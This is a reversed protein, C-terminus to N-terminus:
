SSRYPTTTVMATVGPVFIVFYNNDKRWSVSVDGVDTIFFHHIQVFCTVFICM